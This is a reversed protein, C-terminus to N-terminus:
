TASRFGIINKGSASYLETVRGFSIQGDQKRGHEMLMLGSELFFMRAGEENVVAQAVKEFIYGKESLMPLRSYM